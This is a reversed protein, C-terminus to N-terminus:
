GGHHMSPLPTPSHCRQSQSRATFSRLKQPTVYFSPYPDTALPAFEQKHLEIAAPDAGRDEGPHRPDLVRSKGSPKMHTAAAAPPMRQLMHPIRLPNLSNRGNGIRFAAPTMALGGACQLHM